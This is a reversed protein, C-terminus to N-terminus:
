GGGSGRRFGGGGRRDIPKCVSPDVASLETRAALDARKVVKLTATLMTDISIARTYNPHAVEICSIVGGVRWVLPFNSLSAYEEWRTLMTWLISGSSGPSSMNQSGISLHLYSPMVAQVRGKSLKSLDLTGDAFQWASWARDETIGEDIMNNAGIREYMKALLDGLNWEPEPMELKPLPEPMKTLLDTKVFLVVDLKEGERYMEFAHYDSYQLGQDAFGKAIVDVPVGEVVHLATAFVGVFPTTFLLGLHTIGGFVVGSNDKLNITTPRSALAFRELERFYEDANVTVSTVLWLVALSFSRM